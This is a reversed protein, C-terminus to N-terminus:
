IRNDSPLLCTDLDAASLSSYPLRVASLGLEISVRRGLMCVARDTRLSRVRALSPRKTAVLCACTTYASFGRFGPTFRPRARFGACQERVDRPM